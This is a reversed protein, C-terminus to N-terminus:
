FCFNELVQMHYLFIVSLAFQFLAIALLCETYSGQTVSSDGLTIGSMATVAPLEWLGALQIQHHVISNAKM